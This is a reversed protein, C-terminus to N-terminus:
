WLLLLVFGLMLSYVIVFNAQRALPSLLRTLLDVGLHTGNRIGIGAVLFVSWIGAYRTVEEGWAITPMFPLYRALTGALAALLMISFAAFTAAKVIFDYVNRVTM